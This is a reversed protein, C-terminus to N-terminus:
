IFFCLYFVNRQNRRSWRAKNSNISIIVVVVTYLWRFLRIFYSSEFDNRSMNFHQFVNKKSNDVQFIKNILLSNKTVFWKSRWDFSRKSLFTCIYSETGFNEFFHKNKSCISCMTVSYSTYSLAGKTNAKQCSISSNFFYQKTM